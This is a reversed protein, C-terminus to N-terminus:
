LSLIYLSATRLDCDWLTMMAMTLEQKKQRSKEEPFILLWDCGYPITFKRLNLFSLYGSSAHAQHQGPVKDAHNTDHAIKLIHQPPISKQPVNATCNNFRFNHLQRLHATSELQRYTTHNGVLAATNSM